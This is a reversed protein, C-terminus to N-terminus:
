LKPTFTVCSLINFNDAASGGPRVINDHWQLTLMKLLHRRSINIVAGACPKRAPGPLREGSAVEAAPLFHHLQVLAVVLYGRLRICHAFCIHHGPAVAQANFLVEPAGRMSTELHMEANCGTHLLRACVPMVFSQTKNAPVSFSQCACGSRVPYLWCGLQVPASFNVTFTWFPLNM